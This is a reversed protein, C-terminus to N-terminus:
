YINKISNEPDFQKLFEEVNPFVNEKKAEEKTFFRIEQCEESPTFNFIEKLDINVKYV